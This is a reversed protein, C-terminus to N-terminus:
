LKSNFTCLLACRKVSTVCIYLLGKHLYAVTYEGVFAKKKHFKTSFFVFLTHFCKTFIFDLTQLQFSRTFNAAASLENVIRDQVAAISLFDM